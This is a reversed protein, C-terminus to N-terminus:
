LVRPLQLFWRLSSKLCRYLARTLEVYLVTVGHRKKEVMPGYVEPAILILANAVVGELRMHVVEELFANLFAGPFNVVALDRGENAEQFATLLVSEMKVTPSTTDSKQYLKRQPRGDTCLRAKICGCVKKKLFIVLRSAKLKEQRTLESGRKPKFM